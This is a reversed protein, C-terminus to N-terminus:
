VLQDLFNRAAARPLSCLSLRATKKKACQPLYKMAPIEDIIM